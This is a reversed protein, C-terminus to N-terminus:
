SCHLLLSIPHTLKGKFDRVSKITDKTTNVEDGFYHGNSGNDILHREHTKVWNTLMVEKFVQLCKDQVEPMNWTVTGGFIGMMGMSSAHFAKILAEEYENKGM